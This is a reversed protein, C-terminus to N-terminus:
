THDRFEGHEFEVEVTRLEAGRRDLGSGVLFGASDFGGLFATLLVWGRYGEELSDRHEDGKESKEPQHEGTKEALFRLAPNVGVTATTKPVTVCARVGFAPTETPRVSRYGTRTM